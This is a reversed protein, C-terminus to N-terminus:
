NDEQKRQPNSLAIKDFLRAVAFRARAHYHKLARQKNNLERMVMLVLFRQQQKLLYSLKIKLQAIRFNQKSIRQSFGTFRLPASSWTSQISSTANQTLVLGATVKKLQKKAKWLRDPYDRTLNWHLIGKLIKFQHQQKSIDKKDKLKHILEKAKRLRYIIKKEDPNALAYIDHQQEINNLTNSFADRQQTLRTIKRLRSNNKVYPLKNQYRLKREKLMLEYTPIKEEWHRLTNQLFLLDRYNLYAQQFEHRAILKELYPTAASVPPTTLRFNNDENEADLVKTLSSIFEGGEVINMVTNLSKIEQEYLEVARQYHGLANNNSNIQELTFPIALVSEQVATDITQRNQLAIWPRLAQKHQKLASYAWGIGLLATNSLPGKLRVQRLFEPAQEPTQKRIFAFGIALNAKDVLSSMEETRPSYNNIHLLHEIGKDFKNERILAVGINYRAYYGWENDDSYQALLEKAKSYQKRRLYINSLLHLREDNYNDPLTTSVSNLASLAKDDYSKKYFSKGLYYFARDRTHIPLNANILKTFINHAQTHLGYALFLGGKLLEPENGQTTIPNKKDAILLNTLSSFYKGQYFHFLSEGYRLDKVQQPSLKDSSNKAQSTSGFCCLVLIIPVSLHLRNTSIHLM